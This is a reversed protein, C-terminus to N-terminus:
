TSNQTSQARSQSEAVFLNFLKLISGIPPFNATWSNDNPDCENRGTKGQQKQPQSLV